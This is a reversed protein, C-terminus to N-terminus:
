NRRGAEGHAPMGRDAIPLDDTEWVLLQGSPYEHYLSDFLDRVQTSKWAYSRQMEPLLLKGERIDAVLSQVEQDQARIM